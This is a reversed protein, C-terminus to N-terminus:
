SIIKRKFIIKHISSSIQRSSVLENGETKDTDDARLIQLQHGNQTM